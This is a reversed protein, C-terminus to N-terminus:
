VIGGASQICPTHARRKCLKFGIIDVMEGFHLMKDM